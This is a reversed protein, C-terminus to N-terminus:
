NQNKLEAVKKEIETIKELDANLTKLEDETLENKVNEIQSKLFEVYDKKTNGDDKQVKAFVKDWAEKHEIFLNGEETLLKSIEEEGSNNSSVNGQPEEGAKIKDVIDLIESMRKESDIAGIIQEGIIKGSKDVIVTTPYSFIKHIYELAADGETIFMNKYSVGQKSLIDKAEKLREEDVKDNNVVESNVGVITAGKERLKENFKELEPMENVCASCGNFWFNLITAENESFLSQDIDNGDFDKGKFDPFMEANGETKQTGSGGTGTESNKKGCAALSFIMAVSMVVPLIKKITRM